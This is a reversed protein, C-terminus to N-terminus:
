EKSNYNLKIFLPSLREPTKLIHDPIANVHFEEESDQENQPTIDEVVLVLQENEISNNNEQNIVVPNVEENLTLNIQDYENNGGSPHILSDGEDLMTKSSVLTVSGIPYINFGFPTEMTLNGKKKLSLLFPTEVSMQLDVPIQSQVNDKCIKGVWLALPRNSEEILIRNTDSYVCIDISCKTELENSPIEMVSFSAFKYNNEMVPSNRYEVLYSTNNKSHDKEAEISLKMHHALQCPLGDKWLGEYSPLLSSRRTLKGQGNPKGNKFEGEYTTEHMMKLIGSGDYIDNRWYGTYSFTHSYLCGPGSKKNQFFEGVYKCKNADIYEGNGQQLNHCWDGKYTSGDGYVMLGYGHREGFMFHGTYESKSIAYFRRGKGCIEGDIFSGEYISGDKMSFRGNGWKKSNMWEGDYRYYGNRYFYTGIGNRKDMYTQGTYFGTSM